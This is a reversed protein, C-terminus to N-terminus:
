RRRFSLLALGVTDAEDDRQVARARAAEALQLDGLLTLGQEHARAILSRLDAVRLAGRDAPGLRITLVVVGGRRLATAAFALDTDVRDAVSSHPHLRAVLDVSGPDIANGVVEARTVDLHLPAFGARAAWRSFVSREGATDVVVARRRGDDIVRLLAALGGLAAWATTDDLARPLGLSRSFRRAARADRSDLLLGTIRVESVDGARLAAPEGPHPLRAATGRAAARARGVVRQVTPSTAIRVSATTNRLM